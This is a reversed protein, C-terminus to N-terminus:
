GVPVYIETLIEKEAVEYPDNIYRERIPGTVEKGHAALWTFITNYTTEATDYPGKHVAKVM